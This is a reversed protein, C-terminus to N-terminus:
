SLQKQSKCLWIMRNRGCEGNERGEMFNQTKKKQMEFGRDRIQNSKANDLLM